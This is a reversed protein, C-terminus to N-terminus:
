DLTRIAPSRKCETSSFLFEVLGFTKGILRFTTRRATLGIFFLTLATSGIAIIGFPLDIAHSLRSLDLYVLCESPYPPLGTISRSTKDREEEELQRM